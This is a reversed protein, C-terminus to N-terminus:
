GTEETPPGALIAASARRSRRLATRRVPRFPKPNRRSTRRHNCKARHANRQPRAIEDMWPLHRGLVQQYLFLPASLVQRRTSLAVQRGVALWSLFAEVEAAGMERPDRLGHHRVLARVWYVHHRNAAYARISSAFGSACRTWCVPLRCRRCPLIIPAAYCPMRARNKYVAYVGAARLALPKVRSRGAGSVGRQAMNHLLDATRWATNRLLVAGSISNPLV